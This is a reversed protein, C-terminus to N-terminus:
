APVRVKGAVGEFARPALEAILIREKNVPGPMEIRGREVRKFGFRGYYPEDGVLLMLRDGRAVAADLSRKVLAGGIGRARFAADVTLPGLMLAATEGIVIPSVRVSGVLFTGVRAIFSLEPVHPVGERLRYASRAYRGPGFVHDHLRDVILSDDSPETMLTLSLTTM